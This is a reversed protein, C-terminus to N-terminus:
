FVALNPGEWVCAWIPEENEESMEPFVKAVRGSHFYLEPSSSKYKHTPYIGVSHLVFCDCCKILESLNCTLSNFLFFFPMKMLCQLLIAEGVAQLCWLYIFINWLVIKSQIPLILKYEMEICQGYFSVYFFAHCGYDLAKVQELSFM